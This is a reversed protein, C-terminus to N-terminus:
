CAVAEVVMVVAETASMTIVTATAIVIVPMGDRSVMELVAMVAAPVGGMVVM